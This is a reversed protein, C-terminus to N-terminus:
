RACLFNKHVRFSKTDCRITFDTTSADEMITKNVTLLTDQTDPDSKIRPM